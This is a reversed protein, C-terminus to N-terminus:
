LISKIQVIKVKLPGFLGLPTLFLSCPFSIIQNVHNQKWFSLVIFFALLIFEGELLSVKGNLRLGLLQSIGKTKLKSKVTWYAEVVGKM